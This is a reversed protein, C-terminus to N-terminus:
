NSINFIKGPGGISNHAHGGGGKLHKEVSVLQFNLSRLQQLALNATDASIVGIDLSSVKPSGGLTHVRLGLQQNGGVPLVFM